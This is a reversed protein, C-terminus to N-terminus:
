GIFLGTGPPPTILFKLHSSEIEEDVPVHLPVLRKGREIPSSRVHVDRNGSGKFPKSFCIKIAENLNFIQNKIFVM